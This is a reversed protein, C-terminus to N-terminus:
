STRGRRSRLRQISRLRAMERELIATAEAFGEDDTRKEKLMDEARQRAAHIAHEELNEARDATDTLIRVATGDIQVVGRSVAYFSETAGERAIVTGPMVTSLLPIHGALVTIEGAGSPLTVSDAKGRYILEEPTIIELYM